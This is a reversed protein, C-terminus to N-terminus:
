QDNIWELITEGLDPEGASTKGLMDSGHGAQQYIIVNINSRINEPAVSAIKQLVDSNSQTDNNSGVLMLKQDATLKAMLPETKIGRYDIGPSLLVTKKIEKHETLSLLALNAGISAGILILDNQRIGKTELFEIGADIDLITKQHDADSFNGFGEPGGTSEGHGRLDIALVQYSAAQLKPAFENWSEKTAPMMHLLLVGKSSPSPYYLGIINLNDETKLTIKEMILNELNKPETTESGKRNKLVFIAGIIIIIFIVFILIFFKAKM